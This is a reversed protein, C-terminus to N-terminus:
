GRWPRWDRLITNDLISHAFNTEGLTADLFSVSYMCTGAFRTRVLKAKMLLAEALDAREFNAGGLDSKRFQTGRARVREMLSDSLDAESFDAGGVDAGTFVASVLDASRLNSGPLVADRFTADNLAASGLFRVNAMSAGDFCARPAHVEVFNSGPLTSRSFDTETLECQLWNSQSLDCQYFHCRSLDQEIFNVEQMDCDVFAVHDFCAESFMEMRGSLRCREFRSNTINCRALRAESFDCDKFISDTIEAAGLNSDVFKVNNCTCNNFRAKALVASNLITGQLTTSILGLYEVLAGSMDLADLRQGTLDVFAYDGGRVDNTGPRAGLIQDRKTSEEGPHPSLSEDLYHAVERYADLMNQNAADARKRMEDMDPIAGQIHSPDVGARELEQRYSELASLQEQLQAIEPDFRPRPLPQSDSSDELAREAEAIARTLHEQEPENQQKLADIHQRLYQKAQDTEERSIRDTYERLDDFADFDIKTIDVAGQGSAGPVIKEMLETLERERAAPEPQSNLAVQAQGVGTSAEPMDDPLSEDHGKIQEQARDLQGKADTEARERQRDTFEAANASVLNEMESEAAMDQIACPCDSPLLPATNLMYRYGEDPDCRKRMEAEYHSRSRRQDNLNEHAALITVVDAADDEAVQTTGRHIVVGIEADPLFWVTDARMPIERFETSLEGNEDQQHMDVFARAVVGPLHGRIRNKGPHMNILEFDETGHLFHDLWQDEAADNFVRWDIDDPLGPMRKRIYEEDYTGAYRQRPEWGLDRGELSAPRPRQGPSSIAESPYEINPLPVRGDSDSAGYGKGIPNAPFGNGGFANNYRIPLTSIPEPRTAVGARWHRPGTVVLKKTREAVRVSIADQRVSGGAPAYFSGACLFEAREKPMSQDFVRAEQFLSTLAQWMETELVAEGTELRFPWLVSLCIYHQGLYSFPKQLVGAQMSSLVRM